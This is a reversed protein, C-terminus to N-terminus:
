TWPQPSAAEHLNTLRDVIGGVREVDILSLRGYAHIAVYNWTPVNPAMGYWDPSIYAHPGHFIVMAEGSFASQPNARAIHGTIVLKDGREDILLPLHTASIEGITQTLLIAFSNAKMFAVDQARGPSRNIEPIYM